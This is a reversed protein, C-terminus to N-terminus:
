HERAKEIRAPLSRLTEIVCACDEDYHDEIEERTLGAFVSESQAPQGAEVPAVLHTLLDEHPHFDEHVSRIIRESVVSGVNFDYGVRYRVLHHGDRFVMGISPVDKASLHVNKFETELRTKMEGNVFSPLFSMAELIEARNVPCKSILDDTETMAVEYLKPSRYGKVFFLIPKLM